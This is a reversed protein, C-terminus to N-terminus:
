CVASLVCCVKTLERVSDGLCASKRIPTEEVLERVAQNESIEITLTAQDHIYRVPVYCAEGPAMLLSSQETGPRDLVLKADVDLNNLVSVVSRVLVLVQYGVRQVEYCDRLPGIAGLEGEAGGAAAEAELPTAARRWVKALCDHSLTWNIKRMHEIEYVYGDSDPGYVLTANDHDDSAGIAALDQELYDPPVCTLQRVADGLTGAKNVDSQELMVRVASAPNCRGSAPRELRAIHASGQGIRTWGAALSSQPLVRFWLKNTKTELKDGPALTCLDDASFLSSEEQNTANTPDKTTAQLNVIASSASLCNHIVLTAETDMGEADEDDTGLLAAMLFDAAPPTLTVNFPDLKVAMCPESHMDERTLICTLATKNLLSGHVVLDASRVDSHSGIISLALEASIEGAMNGTGALKDIRYELTAHYGFPDFVAVTISKYVVVFNTPIIGYPSSILSLGSQSGRIVRGDAPREEVLEIEFPQVTTVSPAPPQPRLMRNLLPISSTADSIGDLVAGVVKLALRIEEAAIKLEVAPQCLLVGRAHESSAVIAEIPAELQMIHEGDPNPFTSVVLSQMSLMGYSLGGSSGGEVVPELHATLQQKSAATSLALRLPGGTYGVCYCGGDAKLQSVSGGTYSALKDRTADMRQSHAWRTEEDADLGIDVMAAGVKLNGKLHSMEIALRADGAM